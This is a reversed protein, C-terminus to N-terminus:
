GAARASRAEAYGKIKMDSDIGFTERVAFDKNPLNSYDAM